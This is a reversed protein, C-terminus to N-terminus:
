KDNTEPSLFSPSELNSRPPAQLYQYGSNPNDRDYAYADRNKLFDIVYRVPIAFNLGEAFTYGM